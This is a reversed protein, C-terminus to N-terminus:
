TEEQKVSSLGIYAGLLNGAIIGVMEVINRYWLSPGLPIELSVAQHILFILFSIAFITVITALVIGFIKKYKPVILVACGVLAASSVLRTILLIYTGRLPMGNMDMSNLLASVEDFGHGLSFGYVSFMHFLFSAAIGAPIAIIWRVIRIM